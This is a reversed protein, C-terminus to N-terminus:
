YGDELYAMKLLIIPLESFFRLQVKPVERLLRVQFM